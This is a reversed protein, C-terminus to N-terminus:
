SLRVFGPILEKVVLNAVGEMGLKLIKMNDNFKQTQNATNRSIVLGMREALDAFERLSGSGENLLPILDKGARGLLKLAAETKVAGDATKGFKDAMETLVQIPSKINGAADRVSIGLQDFTDKFEKNGSAAAVMNKSLIGMSKSLTEMSVDSLDAAVRLQTLEEVSVGVKQAMKGMDDAFKLADLAATKFAHTITDFTREVVRVLGTGAFVAGM